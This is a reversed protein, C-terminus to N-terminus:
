RGYLGIYFGQAIIHGRTASAIYAGTADPTLGKIAAINLASVTFKYHHPYDGVPPCPGQYGPLAHDTMGGIAGPPLAAGADFGTVDPAIDGVLWHWFGVGTPADPDFETVLFSKTGAPAGRWHLDPSINEGGCAKFAASRPQTGGNAFTSSTVIIKPLNAPTGNSRLTQASAATAILSALITALFIRSM